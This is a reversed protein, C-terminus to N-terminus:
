LRELMRSVGGEQVWPPFLQTITTSGATYPYVDVTIDLGRSRADVIRDLARQITGWNKRGIVKLHSIHVAVEAQQAMTIMEDLSNLLTDGEGRMHVAVVGDYQGVVHALSTIETTPTYLGPIYMLGLSLGVAGAQMAEAILAQQTSIEQATAARQEFGMVAVRLATHGMLACVNQGLPRTRLTDLFAGMTPWDWAQEDRGLVSASYTKIADAHAPITPAISFGCNGIVLTTIGQQVKAPVIASRLVVLDDHTHADVFGPAIVMGDADMVHHADEGLHDASIATIRQQDVGIHGIFAPSGTGDVIRANHILLDYM